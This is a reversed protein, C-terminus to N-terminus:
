FIYDNITNKYTDIIDSMYYSASNLYYDQTKRQKNKEIAYLERARAQRKIRTIEKQAEIQAQRIRFKDICERPTKGDEEFVLVEKNCRIIVKYMIYRYLEYRNKRYNWTFAESIEYKRDNYFFVEVFEDSLQRM